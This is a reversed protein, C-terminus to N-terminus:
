RSCGPDNRKDKVFANMIQAFLAPNEAFSFHGTGPIVALGSNPIKEEMVHADRMPTATDNEGWILLTDQRIGPLCYTLDENVSKVLTGKMIESARRYDESGQRSRWDDIIEPFLWYIVKNAFVKRLMKYSLQRRKQEPTRVPPIGASDILILRPVVIPSEMGDRDGERGVTGRADPRQTVIKGAYKPDGTLKLIIRGGYSHGILMCEDIKMAHLFDLFFDAYDEVSWPEKPEESAGFGPLDFQVVKFRDGILAAVPDYLGYCTGWGQLLVAVPADAEKLGSVGYAINLEDVRVYESM